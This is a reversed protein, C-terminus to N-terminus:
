CKKRRIVSLFWYNYGPTDHEVLVETVGPLEALVTRARIRWDVRVASKLVHLDTRVVSDGLNRSVVGDRLHKGLRAQVLAARAERTARAPSLGAVDGPTYARGTAPYIWESTDTSWVVLSEVPGAAEAARKSRYTTITGDDQVHGYTLTTDSYNIV